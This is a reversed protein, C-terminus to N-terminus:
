EVTFADGKNVVTRGRSVNLNREGKTIAIAPRVLFVCDGDRQESTEGSAPHALAMTKAYFKTVRQTNHHM